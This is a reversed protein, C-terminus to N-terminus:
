QMRISGTWRSGQPPPNDHDHFGCTRPDNVGTFMNLSERSQGPGIVGGNLAPCLDHEPHPDSAMNHPRTDNNVFIVRTGAAITLSKPTAGDSTLTITRGETSPSSPASPTESSGGCSASVLAALLCWCTPRM